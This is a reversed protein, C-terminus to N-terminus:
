SLGLISAANQYFICSLEKETFGIKQLRETDDKSSHWPSDTGFLVRQAGYDRVAALLNDDSVEGITCALDFYCPWDKRTNIASELSRRGGMHALVFRNYPYRSFLQDFEDQTGFRLGDEIGTSAHILIVLNETMAAEYIRDLKHNHPHYSQLLPHMKIGKFGDRALGRIVQEPKEMEPHVAAFPIIRDHTLLDRLFDNVAVVQGAKQPVSLVVSKDVGSREMSDLLGDLTGDSFVQLPYKKFSDLARSAIQEPFVHTHFDIIQEQYVM